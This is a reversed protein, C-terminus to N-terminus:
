QFSVACDLLESWLRGRERFFEGLRAQNNRYDIVENDKPDVTFYERVGYKEYVQFKSKPDYYATSPSLIEIVLDPAGYVGDEKVLTGMREESIFLIDPQFANEEDFYVDAPAHLLLGLGNEVIHRGLGVILRTSLAQHRIKPGPMSPNEKQIIKGDVLEYKAGEPLKCYDAVTARTKTIM